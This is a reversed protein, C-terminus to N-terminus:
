QVPGRARASRDESWAAAELFGAIDQEYGWGAIIRRSAEGMRGLREPDELVAVLADALGEVHGAEFVQGNVGDQVLDPWCGVEDSVIVPLGASMAENVVLGWPEHRSPLVFLDVLGFMRALSTQNQFGPFVIPLGAAARAMAEAQEGSGAMVLVPKTVGAALLRPLALRFAEILDLGRKREMFKSAFLIVTADPELGEARRLADRDVRADAALREFFAGDVAYPLVFVNAEDVGNDLYYQRNLTGVALFGLGRRSWSRFLLRKVTERWGIRRNGTQHIDDRIFVQMKRRLAREIVFVYYPNAFGHIWLASKGATKLRRFLGASFNFPGARNLAHPELTRSRYGELLPVDWEVTRGFGSDFFAGATASSQFYVDLDVGPTASIM